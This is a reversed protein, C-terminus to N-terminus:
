PTFTAPATVGYWGMLGQSLPFSSVNGGVFWQGGDPDVWCAHYDLFPEQPESEDRVWTGDIRRFISTQQGCAVPEDGNAWVGNVQPAFDPSENTWGAGDHHLITASNLGGVAWTDTGDGNVTFLPVSADTPVHTWSAGDFHLTLGGAGVVWVDDASRGWVKYLQAANAASEPLTQATWTAGDYHYLRGGGPGIALEAGVTWLDDDAAGWIGFLTVADDVVAVTEADGEIHVVRGGAGVAWAEDPGRPFVWWLDGGSAVDIQEWGTGDFHLVGPGGGADAGVSWVDDAATGGISLLAGPLESM